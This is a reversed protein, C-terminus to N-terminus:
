GLPRLSIAKRAYRELGLTELEEIPESLMQAYVPEHDSFIGGLRAHEHKTIRALVVCQELIESCMAPDMIMRDVLVRCPVIHDLDVDARFAGAGAASEYRPEVLKTWRRVITELVRRIEHDAEVKSVHVPSIDRKTALTAVARACALLQSSRHDKSIKM